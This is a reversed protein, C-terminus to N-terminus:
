LSPRDRYYIMCDNKCADIYKYILRFRTLTTTAQNSTPLLTTFKLQGRMFNLLRNFASDIIENEVKWEVLEVTFSLVSTECGRHV